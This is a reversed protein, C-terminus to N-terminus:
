EYIVSRGVRAGYARAWEAREWLEDRGRRGGCGRLQEELERRVNYRIRDRAAHYKSNQPREVALPCM